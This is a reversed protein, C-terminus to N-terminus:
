MLWSAIGSLGVFGILGGLVFFCLRVGDTKLAKFTRSLLNIIPNYMGFAVCLAGGSVGPLIAGFGVLVGKLVLLIPDILRNM